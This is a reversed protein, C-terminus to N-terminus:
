KIPSSPTKLALMKKITSLKLSIEKWEKELESKLVVGGGACVGIESENWQANRIGVYCAFLDADKAMFGVPAGFRKRDISKQLKRLWASGAEKPYAGLAPTPHLAQVLEEFDAPLNPTLTIPTYLHKIIILDLVQMDSVAVEGFSSLSNKIGDIVYRHEILEKPDNFFLIADADGACTGACAVTEIEQNGEGKRFLIEPTAGLIGERSDWFGYLYCPSNESQKLLSLLAEARRQHTMTGKAISQAFPVGKKLAGTQLYEEKLERFMSSYLSYSPPSWALPECPHKASRELEKLLEATSIVGTKEQYFWPAPDDLFFDPFYFSYQEDRPCTRSWSRAGWGLLLKKEQFAIVTGSSLFEEIFDM